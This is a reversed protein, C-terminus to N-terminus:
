EPRRHDTTVLLSGSAVQSLMEEFPAYVKDFRELLDLGYDPLRVCLQLHRDDIEPDHYVSLVLQAEDGFEHRTRAVIVPVLSALDSHNEFYVRVEGANPILVRFASLGQLVADAPFIRGQDQQVIASM